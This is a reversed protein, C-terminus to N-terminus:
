DCAPSPQIAETSLVARIEACCGVLIQRCRELSFEPHQVSSLTLVGETCKILPLALVDAPSQLSRAPFVTPIAKFLCFFHVLHASEYGEYGIPPLFTCSFHAAEAYHKLFLPVAIKLQHEYEGEKRELYWDLANPVIKPDIIYVEGTFWNCVQPKTDFVARLKDRGGISFGKMKYLLGAYSAGEPSQDISQRGKNM